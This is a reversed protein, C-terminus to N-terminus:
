SRYFLLWPGIAAVAYLITMILLGRHVGRFYLLLGCLSAATKAGVLAVAPGVLVIWTALLANGEVAPGHIGIAVYTFIGDFVQAVLFLALTLRPVSVVPMAAIRPGGIQRPIRSFPLENPVGPNALLRGRDQSYSPIWANSTVM